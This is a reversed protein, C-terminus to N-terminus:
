LVGSILKLLIAGVLLITSIDIILWVRPRNLKESFRRAIFMLGFMWIFDGIVAGLMFANNKWGHYQTSISGIVVITDIFVLPNLWTMALARLIAIKKDVYNSNLKIDHPTKLGQIKLWLYYALFLIGAINIILILAKSNTIELGICGVIILISDAIFCTTAVAYEHNRRISHSIVNLNQPGVGAIIGIVFIMGTFAVSLFEM